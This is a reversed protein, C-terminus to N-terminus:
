FLVPPCFPNSSRLSKGTSVFSGITTLETTQALSHVTLRLLITGKVQRNPGLPVPLRYLYTCYCFSPLGEM